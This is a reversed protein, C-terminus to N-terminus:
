RRLVGAHFGPVRRKWRGGTGPVGGASGARSRCSRWRHCATWFPVLINAVIAYRANAPAAKGALAAKLKDGVEFLKDPRYPNPPAPTPTVMVVQTQVKTIVQPTPTAAPACGALLIMVAVLLLSVFSRRNV